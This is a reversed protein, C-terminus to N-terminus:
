TRVTLIMYAAAAGFLINPAWAALMPSILGGAGLAGFISMTTWYVIAMVIGVGIGYLAGRRGTTVAFPVALLTMIVTVFPFAVKRQLQVMYPVVHFGSTRLQAIYSKLQDYTMREADPEDTKFYTPPELPLKLSAYATYNVVNRTVRRRTAATFTRTWAQRGQWAFGGDGDAGAVTVLAVDKAYTLSALRWNKQDVEFMTLRSFENRNPDFFAYNYIGGANGVIWQRNLVGFTQAPFGRMVHKIADARRNSFALVHEQMEYLVGSLLVAFVLLPVASRYLSVGCARMVILESNKTLAGIVVLTAVLGAMPIILYAYRPTEFYLYRFLLGTTASGRFVRDASDIFTSIYFVGLLGALSLFFVRLYQRSVYLDLLSPRPLEFQPVKVVVTVVRRGRRAAPPVAPTAEDPSSRPQRRFLPLTIRIPQDASGARWVVLVVGAAGFLINAIWPALTPSLTGGVAIARSTWLLLYYVMVVVFGMVFGGLSGGKKNTAGLALGILALVLCAAPFAFKQQITFYELASSTGTKANREIQAQLEAITMENYGKLVTARPFVSQPDVTLVLRSFSTGTYDNPKNLYTTHQTGEDLVLEGSRKERNILLRGEKAFYVRTEDTASADALFVDRWGGKVVDRVYLARNAGFGQFFVRPKVDSEASSALINFTIERFKQNQNPLSVIMVYATAATALVALLAIPRLIRFISVGCAQLAVFERDASVRGLGILIGLLLAMPITIGLAQPLLTILVQAVITWGVGKAILQEGQELIPPIELIFTLVLLSLFFPLLVERVIYRDLIRLM